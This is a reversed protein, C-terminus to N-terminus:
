PQTTNPNNPLPQWHTVKHKLPEKRWSMFQETKTNYLCEMVVGNSKAVIINEFRLPRKEPFRDSVSIWNDKQSQQAHFEVFWEMAKYYRESDKLYQNQKEKDDNFKLSMQACYASSSLLEDIILKSYDNEAETRLKNEM